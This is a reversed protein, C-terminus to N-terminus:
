HPIYFKWVLLFAAAAALTLVLMCITCCSTTATDKADTDPPTMASEKHTGGVVM